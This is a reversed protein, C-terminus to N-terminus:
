GGFGSEHGNEVLAVKEALLGDKPITGVFGADASAGGNANALDAAGEELLHGTRERRKAVNKELGESAAGTIKPAAQREGFRKEFVLGERTEELGKRGGKEVFLGGEGLGEPGEILTGNAFKEDEVLMLTEPGDQVVRIDKLNNDAEGDGGGLCRAVEALAFEALEQEAIGNVDSKVIGNEHGGGGQEIVAEGAQRHDLAFIIEAGDAVEASFFDAAADDLFDALLRGALRLGGASDEWAWNWERARWMDDRACSPSQKKRWGPALWLRSEDGM